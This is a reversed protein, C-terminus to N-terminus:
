RILWFVVGCPVRRTMTERRYVVIVHFFKLWMWSVSRVLADSRTKIKKDKSRLPFRIFARVHWLKLSSTARPYVCVFGRGADPLLWFVACSRGASGSASPLSLFSLLFLLLLLFHYNSQPWQPICVGMFSRCAQQKKCFESESIHSEGWVSMWLEAGARWGVPGHSLPASYDSQATKNM